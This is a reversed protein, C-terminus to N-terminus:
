KQKGTKKKKFAAHIAALVFCEESYFLFHFPFDSIFQYQSSFLLPPPVLFFFQRSRGVSTIGNEFDKM